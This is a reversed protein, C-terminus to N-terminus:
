AQHFEHRGGKKPLADPRSPRSKQASPLIVARGGPKKLSVPDRPTRQAWRMSRVFVPKEARKADLFVYAPSIPCMPAALERLWALILILSHGRGSMLKRDLGPPTLLLLLLRSSHFAPASPPRIASEQLPM